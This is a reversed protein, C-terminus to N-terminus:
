YDDAKNQQERLKKFDAFSVDAPKQEAYANNQMADTLRLQYIILGVDALIFDDDNIYKTRNKKEGTDKEEVHVQSLFFRCFV